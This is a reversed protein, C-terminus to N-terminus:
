KINCKAKLANLDNTTLKENTGQNLYYMIDTTGSSHDLGLAHGLEHALLRILQQRNNFEYVNITRGSADQIYVGEDFQQGAQAGISNYQKVTLNLDHILKNLVAAEANVAEALQNLQAIKNNIQDLEVKLAASTQNLQDYIAPSAGGRKNWQSVQQEYATQRKKFDAIQAQLAANQQDYYKSDAEYKTKLQNYSDQNSNVTIGLSKLKDTAAQRYDYILNIKVEGSTAYAFLQKDIPKSWIDGASQLASLLDKQSINFRKDVDGLGYTIPKSCPPTILNAIEQEASILYKGAQLLWDYIPARFYFIVGAILAAVILSLLFKLIKKLM